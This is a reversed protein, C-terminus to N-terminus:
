IKQPNSKRWGMWCGCWHDCLLLFLQLVGYGALAIGLSLGLPGVAKFIVTSVAVLVTLKLMSWISFQKNMAFPSDYFPYGDFRYRYGAGIAGLYGMAIALPVTTGMFTIVEVPFMIWEHGFIFLSVSTSALFGTLGGFVGSAGRETIAGGAIWGFVQLLLYAPISMVMGYIAGLLSGIVVYFFVSFIMESNLPIGDTFFLFGFFFAGMVIPYSGAAIVIGCWSITMQTADDIKWDFRVSSKPM